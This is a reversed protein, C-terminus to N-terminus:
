IIDYNRRPRDRKTKSPCRAEIRGRKFGSRVEEVYAPVRRFHTNAHMTLFLAILLEPREWLLLCHPLCGMVASKKGNYPQVDSKASCWWATYKWVRWPVVSGQVEGKGRVADCVLIRDYDHGRPWEYWASHIGYRHIHHLLICVYTVLIRDYDHGRPRENSVQTSLYRHRPFRTLHTLLLTCTRQHPHSWSLRYLACPSM